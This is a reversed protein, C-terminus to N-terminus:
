NTTQNALNLIDGTTVPVIPKGNVNVPQVKLPDWGPQTQSLFNWPLVNSPKM